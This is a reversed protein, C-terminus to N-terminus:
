QLTEKFLANLQTNSVARRGSTYRNLAEYFRITEESAKNKELAAMATKALEEQHSLLALYYLRAWEELSSTEKITEKSASAAETFKGQAEFVISLERFVSTQDYGYDLASVLNKEAKEFFSIMRYLRGLYFHVSPEKPNYKLAKEYSSIAKHRLNVIEYLRALDRHRRWNRRDFLVAQEYATIAKDTRGASEYSKGMYLYIHKKLATPPAYSLASDFSEVAEDWRGQKYLERGLEYLLVSRTRYNREPPIEDIKQRLEDVTKPGSLFAGWVPAALLLGAILLACKM